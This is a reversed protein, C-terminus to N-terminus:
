IGPRKKRHAPHTLVLGSVVVDLGAALQQMDRLESKQSVGARVVVVLGDCRSATVAAEPQRLVEGLNVIVYRFRARFAQLLQAAEPSMCRAAADSSAAGAPLAHLTTVATAVPLAATDDSQSVLAIREVWGPALPIGLQTHLSPARVNADILLVEGQEMVALGVALEAATHATDQSLSGTIGIVNSAAAHLVKLRAALRIGDESLPLAGSAVHRLVSAIQQPTLLGKELLLSGIPHAHGLRQRQEAQDSLASAVHDSGVYGLSVAADGFQPGKPVPAEVRAGFLKM